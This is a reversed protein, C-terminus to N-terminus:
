FSLNDIILSGMKRWIKVSIWANWAIIQNWNIILLIKLNVSCSHQSFIQCTRSAVTLLASATRGGVEWWSFMSSGPMCSVAPSAPVPEYTINELPGRVHGLLLLSVLDFRCVAARHPCALLLSCYPPTALSPWPYGHQHCSLIIILHNCNWTVIRLVFLKWSDRHLRFVKWISIRPAYSLNGSKKRIPM